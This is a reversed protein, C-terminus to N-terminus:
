GLKFVVFWLPFPGMFAKLIAAVTIARLPVAKDAWVISVTFDSMPLTTAEALVPM